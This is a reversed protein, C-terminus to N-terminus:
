PMHTEEFFQWEDPSIEGNKNHDAELFAKADSDPYHAIFEHWEIIGDRNHDVESFPATYRPLSACATLLVTTIGILWFKPMM